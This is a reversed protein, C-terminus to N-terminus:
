KKSPEDFTITEFTDYGGKQPRLFFAMTIRSPVIQYAIYEGAYLKSIPPSNYDNKNSLQYMNEIIAERTDDEVVRAVGTVQITLQLKEDYVLLQVSNDKHLNQHKRTQKKTAFSITFDTDVKYYVVTLQPAHTNQEITGLVASHRAHLEQYINRASEDSNM